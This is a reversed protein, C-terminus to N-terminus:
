EDEWVQAQKQARGGDNVTTESRAATRLENITSDEM